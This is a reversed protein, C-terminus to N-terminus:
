ETQQLRIIDATEDGILIYRTNDDVRLVVNVNKEIEVKLKQKGGINYITLRGNSYFVIDEGSTYIGKYDGTFDMDLVKKGRANRYMVLRNEGGNAAKELVVGTYDGSYFVSRIKETFDEKELAKPVETVRYFVLGSERCIMATDNTVFAVEPVLEEFSYSGVMNDVYNQGVEGFNYFTVWSLCSGSEISVYSTVLKRGDQSLALALPFGNNKTVTMIDVLATASGPEYLYIHDNEEGTAMIAVVGQSAIKVAAVKETLEFRSVTGNGDVICFQTGGKDAVVAYKGCVSVVPNKMVYAINWCQEGEAQFAAAGDRGYSIYGGDYACYRVSSDTSLQVTQVTEYSNYVKEKRRGFFVIGAVVLLCVAAVVPIVYRKKKTKTAEEAKRLKRDFQIM